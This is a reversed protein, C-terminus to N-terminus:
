PTVSPPYSIDFMQQRRQTWKMYPKELMDEVAKLAKARAVETNNKKKGGSRRGRSLWGPFGEVAKAALKTLEEQSIQANEERASVIVGRIRDAVRTLIRERAFKSYKEAGFYEIDDAINEPIQVTATAQVYENVLTGGQEPHITKDMHSGTKTKGTVKVSTFKM